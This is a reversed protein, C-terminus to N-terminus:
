RTSSYGRTSPDSSSDSGPPSCARIFEFGLGTLSYLIAGKVGPQPLSATGRRETVDHESELLGLRMLSNRVLAFDAMDATQEKVVGQQANTDTKTIKSVRSLGASNFVTMLERGDITVKQISNATPTNDPFTNSFEQEVREYFCKLYKADAPTLQRLIESFCPLVKKGTDPSAATALLCAWLTQLNDDEELSSHEVIPLLLKPSIPQPQLGANELLANTRGLIKIANKLRFYNGWDGLTMGVQTCFPLILVKFPELLADVAGKASGEAAVKVFDKDDVPM